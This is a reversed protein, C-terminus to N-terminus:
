FAMVTVVCNGVIWLLGAVTSNQCNYAPPVYARLAVKERNGNIPVRETLMLAPTILRKSTTAPSIKSM